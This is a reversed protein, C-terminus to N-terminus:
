KYGIFKLFKLTLDVPVELYLRIWSSVFPSFNFVIRIMFSNPIMRCQIITAVEVDETTLVTLRFVRIHNTAQIMSMFPMLGSFQNRSSITVCGNNRLSSPVKKNNTTSFRCLKCNPQYLTVFLEVIIISPRLHPLGCNIAHSEAGSVPPWISTFCSTFHFDFSLWNSVTKSSSEYGNINKHEYFLEDIILILQRYHSFGDYQKITSSGNNVFDSPLICDFAM